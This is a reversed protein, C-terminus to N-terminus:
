TQLVQDCFYQQFYFYGQSSQLHFHIEVGIEANQFIYAASFVWDGIIGMNDFDEDTLGYIILSRYYDEKRM